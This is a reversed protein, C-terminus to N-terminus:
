MSDSDRGVIDPEYVSLGSYNRYLKRYRQYAVFVGTFLILIIIFLFIGQHPQSQVFDTKGSSLTQWMQIRDCLSVDSGVCACKSKDSWICADIGISGGRCITKITANGRHVIELHQSGVVTGDSFVASDGWSDVATTNWECKRFGLLTIGSFDGLGNNSISLLNNSLTLSLEPGVRWSLELIRIYNEDVINQVVPLSPFFGADEPGIEPSMSFIGHNVFAWDDSEGSTAYGLLQPASGSRSFNLLKALEAYNSNAEVSLDGGSNLPFTLFEGFSHFNLIAVPHWIEIIDKLARTEPESFPYPGSYEESCIDAVAEWKYGFNRNLDVGAMYTDNCGPRRNKRRMGAAYGDPNVIPFFLLERSSLLGDESSSSRCLLELSHLLLVLGAPEKGHILSTLLLRPSGPKGIAFAELPRGEHSFGLPIVQIERSCSRLLGSLVVIAQLYSPFHDM